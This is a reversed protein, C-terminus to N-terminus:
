ASRRPNARAGYHLYPTGDPLQYFVVATWNREGEDRFALADDALPHLEHEAVPEEYYEALPGTVTTRMMLREGDLYVDTDRAARRFRAVYREPDVIREGEVPEAKAPVAIGALEEFLETFVEQSLDGANGGNTLVAVALGEDPALRLYAHQGLTAGDHGIVRHGDWDFRILGLGWSDGFTYPDPLDVSPAAMEAALEASLLRQGSPAVGGTLHLSAFALLDDAACTILGAPGLSRPLGWAPVVQPAGFEGVHGVAFRDLMCEEPLTTVRHAGLPGALESRVADDWTRGTLREVIRGLIVYGANCYSFTAGLPHNIGADALVEVYRRLCDDGRGTDSIVDGDLGSTHDLLQRITVRHALEEPLVLEPLVAAPSGDLSLKGAEVLRLILTATWSKTISGIQFVSEPTCALGTRVNLVGAAVAFRENADTGPDRRLVGVSAGPVGHRTLLDALRPQWSGALADLSVATAASM